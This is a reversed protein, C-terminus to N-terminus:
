GGDERALRAKAERLIDMQRTIEAERAEEEALRMAAVRAAEQEAAEAAALDAKRQLEDRYATVFEPTWGAIQAHPAAVQDTDVLLQDLQDPSYNRCKVPQLAIVRGSGDEIEELWTVELTHNKLDHCIAAIYKM